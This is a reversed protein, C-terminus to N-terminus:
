EPLTSIVYLAQLLGTPKAEKGFSSRFLTEIAGSRYVRSLTRDVALRFGSDGLPLALAYPEFTFHQESIRLIDRSKSGAALFILIARDGFYASVAGKELQELGDQHDAVTVVEADVSLKTLTNRLAEETTTGGRVGVKHGSLAKMGDPGDARLLVSAGSIFTPLSFDVLERRSLTATTAGCLIDIRGDKIAKFRGETTVPVYDVSLKALGLDAKLRTAITRCLDVSYGVAEGIESKYSFPAADERYGVKLVGTQRLKDLTGAAAAPAQLVMLAMLSYLLFRM